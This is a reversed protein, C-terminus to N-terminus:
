CCSKLSYDSTFENSQVGAKKASHIFLIYIYINQSAKSLFLIIPITKSTFCVQSAALGCGGGSGGQWGSTGKCLGPDTYLVLM